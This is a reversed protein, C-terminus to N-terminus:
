EVLGERLALRALEGASRVGLTRMIAARQGEVTEVSCQISGAIDECTMGQAILGLVRRDGADLAAVSRGRESIVGLGPLCREIVMPGFAFEDNAVKRIADVVSDPADAKSLFGWAGATVAADIYQDRVFASLMITRVDPRRKTLDALAEFPDHGPLEIDLLVIDARTRAVEGVLDQPTDLWGVVQMDNELGLRARMGEAVSEHDDVCLVRLPEATM